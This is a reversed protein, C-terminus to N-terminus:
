SRDLIQPVILATRHLIFRSEPQHFLTGTMGAGKAASLPLSLSRRGSSTGIEAQLSQQGDWRPRPIIPVPDRSMHQKKNFAFLLLDKERGPARLEPACHAHPIPIVDDSAKKLLSFLAALFVARFLTKLL